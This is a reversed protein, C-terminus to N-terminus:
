EQLTKWTLMLQHDKVPTQTFALRRLDEPSNATNQSSRVISYKPHDGSTNKNKLGETGMGIRQHSYWSCWNCNNYCGNEHEVTKKLERALDLYKDNKKCEKLKVRHDALVDFDVIRCIRKKKKNIRILDPWRALILHDTQIEVNWLLKHTENELVTRPQAYVM